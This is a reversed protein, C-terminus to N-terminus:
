SFGVIGEPTIALFMPSTKKSVCHVVVIVVAAAEAVAVVVLKEKGSSM